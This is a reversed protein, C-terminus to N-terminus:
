SRQFFPIRSNMIVGQTPFREGSLNLLSDWGPQLTTFAYTAPLHFQAAIARSSLVPKLRYPFYAVFVRRRGSRLLATMWRHINWPEQWAWWSLLGVLGHTPYDRLAFGGM